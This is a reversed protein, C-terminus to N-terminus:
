VTKTTTKATTKSISVCHRVRGANFAPAIMRAIAIGFRYMATGKRAHQIREDPWSDLTGHGIPRKM